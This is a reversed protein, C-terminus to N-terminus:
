APYIVLTTDQSPDFSFLVRPAAALYACSASFHPVYSEDNSVREKYRSPDHAFSM